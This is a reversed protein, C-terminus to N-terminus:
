GVRGVMKLVELPLPGRRVTDPWTSEQHLQPATSEAKSFSGEGENEPITRPRNKRCWRLDNMKLAKNKTRCRGALLLLRDRDLVSLSGASSFGDGNRLHCLGAYRVTKAGNIQNAGECVWRRDRAM